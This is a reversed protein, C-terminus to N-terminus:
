CVYVTSICVIIYMWIHIFISKPFGGEKLIKRAPSIDLIMWWVSRLSCIALNQPRLGSLSRVTDNILWREKLDFWSFSISIIHISTFVHIRWWFSVKLGRGSTKEVAAFMLTDSWTKEVVQNAGVTSIKLNKISIFSLGLFIASISIGVQGSQYDKGIFLKFFGDDKFTFWTEFSKFEAWASTTFDRVYPLCALKGCLNDDGVQAWSRQTCWFTLQNWLLAGVLFLIDVM